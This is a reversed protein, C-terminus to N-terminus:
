DLRSGYLNERTYPKPDDPRESVSFGHNTLFTKVAPKIVPPLNPKLFDHCAIVLNRTRRITQEMGLIADIEAGEINMKLFDISRDPHFGELIEDLTAATVTVKRGSSSNMPDISHCLLDDSCNLQVYGATGMVAAEIVTTNSLNNLECTKRLANANLPEAEIAIVQGNHGVHRSFFLADMGTAAGIDIIFDGPSPKYRYTWYDSIQDFQRQHELLWRRYDDRFWRFRGLKVIHIDGTRHIWFQNFYISVDKATASRACRTAIWALIGRTPPSDLSAISSRIFTKTSAILSM